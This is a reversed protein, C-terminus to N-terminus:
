SQYYTPYNINPAGSRGYGALAGGIAGFGAGFAVGIVIGAPGGFAAGISGGAIAGAVAGAGMNLMVSYHASQNNGAVGGSVIMIENADLERM